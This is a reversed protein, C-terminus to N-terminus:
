ELATQAVRRAARGIVDAPSDAPVSLETWRDVVESSGVRLILANGVREVEIFAKASLPLSWPPTMRPSAPFLRAPWETPRRRAAPAPPMASRVLAVCIANGLDEAECDLPLTWAGPEAGDGPGARTVMLRNQAQLLLM